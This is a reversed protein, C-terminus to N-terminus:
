DEACLWSVAICLLMGLAAYRYGGGFAVGGLYAVHLGHEGHHAYHGLRHYRARLKARLSVLRTHGTRIAPHM